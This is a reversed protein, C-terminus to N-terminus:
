LGISIASPAMCAATFTSQLATTTTAGGEAQDNVFDQLLAEYLPCYRADNSPIGAVLSVFAAIPPCSPTGGDASCSGDGV